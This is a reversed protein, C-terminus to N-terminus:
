IYTLEISQDDLTSMYLFVGWNEMVWIATERGQYLIRASVSLYGTSIDRIETEEEGRNMCIDLRERMDTTFAVHPM